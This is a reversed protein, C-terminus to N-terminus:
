LFSPVLFAANVAKRFRGRETVDWQVLLLPIKMNSIIVAERKKTLMLSNRNGIDFIRIQCLKKNNCGNCM